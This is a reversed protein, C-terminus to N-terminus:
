WFNVEPTIEIGFKSHVASQIKIALELIQAGVGKGYHVLVLAQQTHVGVNKYKTGKFGCQEILWGAPVKVSNDSIPYHPLTPYDILLSEYLAKSIVPNKFFSGANGLIKPDPLKSQRIDIIANSVDQITPQTIKKDILVEQIAGYSLNLTHPPKQLKYTVRTIFYKDKLESKFVSERYGFRCSESDFVHVTGANLCIAELNDFCINQEIGYAGINQMPAAGVSGPILSLNELGGLHNDISWMVLDHWIEGGGVRVWISDNNEKIKEIGKIRNHLLYADIDKTILINSGGGLIKIPSLNKNIFDIIESEDQITVLGKHHADFGFTNFATLHINKDIHM